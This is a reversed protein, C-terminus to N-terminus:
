SNRGVCLNCLKPTSMGSRGQTQDFRDTAKLQMAVVSSSTSRKTPQSSRVMTTEGKLYHHHLSSRTTTTMATTTTRAVDTMVGTMEVTVTSTAVVIV